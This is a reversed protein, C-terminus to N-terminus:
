RLGLESSPPLASLLSSMLAFVIPSCSERSDGGAAVTRDHEHPAVRSATRPPLRPRGRWTTWQWQRPHRLDVPAAKEVHPHTGKAEVWKTPHSLRLTQRRPLPPFSLPAEGRASRKKQEPHPQETEM